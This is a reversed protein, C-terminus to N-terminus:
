LESIVYVHMRSEIRERSWKFIIEKNIKRFILSIEVVGSYCMLGANDLSFFIRM